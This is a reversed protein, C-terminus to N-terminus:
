SNPDNYACRLQMAYYSEGDRPCDGYRRFWVGLPGRVLKYVQTQKSLDQLFITRNRFLLQPPEM